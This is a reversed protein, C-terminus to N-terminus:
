MEFNRNKAILFYCSLLYTLSLITNHDPVQSLSFVFWGENLNITKTVFSGDMKDLDVHIEAATMVVVEATRRPAPRHLADSKQSVRAVDAAVLGREKKGPLKTRCLCIRKRGGWQMTCFPNPCDFLEENEKSLEKLDDLSLEYKVDAVIPDTGGNNEILEVVGVFIEYLYGMWEEELLEAEIPYDDNDRLPTTSIDMLDDPLDKDKKPWFARQYQADCQLVPSGDGDLMHYVSTSTVVHVHYPNAVSMVGRKIKSMQINDYQLMLVTNVALEVGKELVYDVYKAMGRVLMQDNPSGPTNAAIINVALQSNSLSKITLNQLVGYSWVWHRSSFSCCHAITTAFFRNLEVPDHNVVTTNTIVLTVVRELLTQLVICSSDGDSADDPTISPKTHSEVFDAHTYGMHLSPFIIAAKAAPDADIDRRAVEEVGVAIYNALLKAEAIRSSETSHRLTHATEHELSSKEADNARQKEEAVLTELEKVRQGATTASAVAKAERDIVADFQGLRELNVRRTNIDEYHVSLLHIEQSGNDIVSSGDCPHLSCVCWRKDAHQVRCGQGYDGKTIRNREENRCATHSCCYVFAEQKVDAIAKGEKKDVRSRKASSSSDM